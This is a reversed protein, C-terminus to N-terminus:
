TRVHNCTSCILLSLVEHFCLSFYQLDFPVLSCSFLPLACFSTGSDKRSPNVGEKNSETVHSNRRIAQQSTPKDTFLRRVHNHRTERHSVIRARWATALTAAKPTPKSSYLVCAFQKRLASKVLSIRMAQPSLLPHTKAM